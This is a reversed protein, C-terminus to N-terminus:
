EGQELLLYKIKYLKDLKINIREQEAKDGQKEWRLMILRKIAEQVATLTM